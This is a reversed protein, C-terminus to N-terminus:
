GEEGLLAAYIQTDQLGCVRIGLDRSLLRLDFDAGHMVIPLDASELADRLLDTPDFALPDITWTEGDITIQVLCLRDSYRHFGAAECDLAIREAGALADVLEGADERREVHIHNM